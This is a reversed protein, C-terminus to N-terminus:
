KLNYKRAINQIFEMMGDIDDTSYEVYEIGFNHLIERLKGDVAIAEAETQLRGAQEYAFDGRSLVININNFSSYYELIKKETKEVDSVNTPNFRNYYLGHLLSGDTIVFKLKKSVAQLEQFQKTSVHYQNDLVDLKDTWVLKKAYESVQEVNYCNIKMKAYLACYVTSKGVGPGGIINIIFNKPHQEFQHTM